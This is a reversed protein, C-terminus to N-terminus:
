SVAGTVSPMNSVTSSLLTRGPLGSQAYRNIIVTNVMGFSQPSSGM